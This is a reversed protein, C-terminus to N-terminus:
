WIDLDTVPLMNGFGNLRHCYIVPFITYSWVFVFASVESNWKVSKLPWVIDEDHMEERLANHPLRLDVSLIYRRLTTGHYLVSVYTVGDQRWNLQRSPYASWSCPVVAACWGVMHQQRFYFLFSPEDWTYEPVRLGIIELNAVQALMPCFAKALM